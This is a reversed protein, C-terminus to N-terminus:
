GHQYCYGSANKTKRKCRVGKKTKGSCQISTARKATSKTPIIGQSNSASKLNNRTPKCRKCATFGKAIADDLSLAKKSYKLYSCTNKHYKKGTNSIYANQSQVNTTPLLFLLFCITTAQLRM